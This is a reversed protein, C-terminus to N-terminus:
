WVLANKLLINSVMADVASIAPFNPRNVDEQDMEDDEEDMMDEEDDMAASSAHNHENYASSSSQM